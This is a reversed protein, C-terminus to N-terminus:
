LEIEIWNLGCREAVDEKFIAVPVYQNDIYDIELRDINHLPVYIITEEYNFMNLPDYSIYDNDKRTKKFYFVLKQELLENVNTVTFYWKNLTVNKQEANKKVKM